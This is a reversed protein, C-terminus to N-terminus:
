AASKPLEATKGTDAEPEAPGVTLFDLNRKM